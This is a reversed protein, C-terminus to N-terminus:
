LVLNQFVKALFNGTVKSTFWIYVLVLGQAFLYILKCQYVVNIWGKNLGKRATPDKMYVLHLSLCVKHLGNVFQIFVQQVM